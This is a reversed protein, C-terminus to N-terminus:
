ISLEALFAANTSPRGLFDEVLSSEDRSAGPALVKARYDHGILPDLPDAAFRTFMDAAYVKSWLYGYYGADYGSMHGWGAPFLSEPPLDLAAYELCMDRYRQALTDAHVETDTSQHHIRLDYLARVAQLQYYSPEQHKKSAILKKLLEPPVPEGTAHHASLKALSRPDWVWYEFIQSLAEVFDLPVGFGNQSQWRGASVIAHMVHGFEHMLTEVGEGDHSLLSPHEPTSKPFNCVLTVFSYTRTGEFSQRGLTVPFAAAHGYKGTRPYLDLAFHGLAAGTASDFVEYLTADPHWLQADAVREFRLGLLSQYMDLMGQLVHELPFYEKAAEPDFAFKEAKLKHSWYAFEHFHIPKPHELELTRKKIAILDKIDTRAGPELKAILDSLFAEITAATKSMRVEEVYDAHTAYGLLGAAEQRLRIMRALRELNEPGGKRLNKTALERRAADDDASQMFPIYEPYQLSIIYRDDGDTRLGQIYRDPMGALQERTVTIHDDYDNIAREFDQEEKQLTQHLIKLRAFDADSLAFGMRRMDRITHDALRQDEGQLTEHKVLWENVAQWLGPDYNLEINAANIAEIAAHATDRLIADPHVNLLLELQQERDALHEDARELAAITNEFTRQDAPVSKIAQLQERKRALAAQVAANIDASKWQIWAIDLM